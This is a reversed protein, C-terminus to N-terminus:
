DVLELRAEPSGTPTSSRQWPRRTLDGITILTRFCKTPFSLLPSKKMLAFPQKKKISNPFLHLVQPWVLRKRKMLSRETNKRNVNGKSKQGSKSLTSKKRTIM